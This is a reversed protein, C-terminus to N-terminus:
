IRRELATAGYRTYHLPAYHRSYTSPSPPDAGLPGARTLIWPAKIFLTVFCPPHLLQEVPKDTLFMSFIYGGWEVYHGDAM